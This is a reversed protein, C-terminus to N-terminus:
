KINIDLSGVGVNATILIKVEASNYNESEYRSESSGFNSIDGGGISISGIGLDYELVYGVGEPLDLIMEGAGIDLSMKESPLSREGLKVNLQGAGLKSTLSSVIVNDLDVNGEGAGLEIGIDTLIDKRGLVMDYETEQRNPVFVGSFSASKFDLELIDEVAKSKLEPQSFHSPYTADVSLYESSDDDSLTFQGAGVEVNLVRKIYIDDYENISVNLKKQVMQSDKFEFCGKEICTNVSSPLFSWSTQSFSLYSFVGICVFSIFSLVSLLIDSLLSKGLVLKLGALIIFVPWFNLLYTWISWGIVGTTNLLFITGIFILFIAWVVDKSKYNDM